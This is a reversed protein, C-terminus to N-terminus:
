SPLPLTTTRRTTVHCQLMLAAAPAGAPQSSDGYLWLRERPLFVAGGSGWARTHLVFRRGGVGVGWGSGVQPWLSQQFQEFTLHLQRAEDQQTADEVFGGGQMGGLHDHIDQKLRHLKLAM